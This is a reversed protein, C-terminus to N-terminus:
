NQTSGNSINSKSERITKKNVGFHAEKHCNPCLAASNLVTDEGGESLPKWHHVELYASKDSAKLFPAPQSCLECIGNARKLVAAVVDPNRKFGTSIIQVKTPLKPANELRENRIADSDKLSKQIEAEFEKEVFYELTIDEVELTQLPLLYSWRGAQTRQKLQTGNSIKYCQSVHIPQSLKRLNKISILNIGNEYIDTEKPQFNKIHENLFELRAPLLKQKNEWGVIEGVYHIHNLDETTSAYLQWSYGKESSFDRLENAIEFAYPQLYFVKDPNIKQNFLIEELVNKHVGNAFYVREKIEKQKSM